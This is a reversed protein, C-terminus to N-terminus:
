MLRVVANFYDKDNIKGIFHDFEDVSDMKEPLENHPVLQSSTHRLALEANIKRIEYEIGSLRRDISSMFEILRTKQPTPYTSTSASAPSMNSSAVYHASKDSSTTLLPRFFLATLQSYRM